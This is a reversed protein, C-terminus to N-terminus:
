EKGVQRRPSGKGPSNILRDPDSFASIDPCVNAAKSFNVSPVLEKLAMPRLGTEFTVVPKFADLAVTFFSAFLIKKLFKHDFSESIKKLRKSATSIKEV